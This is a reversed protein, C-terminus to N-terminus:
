RNVLGAKTPSVSSFKSNADQEGAMSAPRSADLEHPTPDYFIQNALGSWEPGNM